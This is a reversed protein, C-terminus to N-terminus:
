LISGISLPIKLSANKNNNHLYADLDLFTSGDDNRTLSISRLFIRNEWQMIATATAAYLQLQLIEDLPGDILQFVLSGYEERMIRSGLPTTLIDKVSQYISEIETQLTKGNERSMM